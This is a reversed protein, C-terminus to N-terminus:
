MKIGKPRSPEWDGGKIKKRRQEEEYRAEKEKGDRERKQRTQRYGISTAIRAKRTM